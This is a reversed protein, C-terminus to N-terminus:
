MSAGTAGFARTNCTANFVKHAEARLWRLQQQPPSLMPAAPATVPTGPALTMARAIPISSASRASLM